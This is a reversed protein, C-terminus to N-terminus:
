HRRGGGGGRRGGVMGGPSSPGAAAAEIQTTIVPMGETLTPASVETSTEDTIGLTVRVREPSGNRLVYVVGRRPTVSTQQLAVGGDQQLAVGGDRHAGSRRGSHRVGSDEGHDENRERSVGADAGRTANPRFRLAANPVKLVGEHRDSVVTVTATMGPRLKLEPNAVTIVAPYTVVGATTTSGYRLSTLDGRFVDNPFADVRATVALGARLNAIDAEDVNALIQMRRLDNALLFLVPAQFSSAVTQGADISRQIVVGDIPATIRTYGLNAQASELAARTRALDAQAIAVDSVSLDYAGQAQDVDAQANLGRGRLENARDLNIRNTRVSVRARGLQATSSQVAARAQAVAARFPAPDIEALLDGRHVVDNFDVLVRAIRGSVQAGVQVEVEPQLVGSTEVSQVIDGRTVAATLYRPGPTANRRRYYVYGAIGTLTLALFLWLAKRGRKRQFGAFADQTM